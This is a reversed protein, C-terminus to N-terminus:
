DIDELEENVVNVFYYFLRGFCMFYLIMGLLFIDLKIIFNGYRGMVDKKFVELVCYLIMGMLGILKCVVYEM